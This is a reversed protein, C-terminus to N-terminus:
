INNIYPVTGVVTVIHAVTPMTQPHATFTVLKRQDQLLKSNKSSTSLKSDTNYQMQTTDFM